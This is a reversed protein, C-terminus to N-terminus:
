ITCHIVINVFTIIRMKEISRQIYKDTQRDTLGDMRGGTQGDTWEDTWINIQIQEFRSAIRHEALSTCLVRSSIEIEFVFIKIFFKFQLNSPM